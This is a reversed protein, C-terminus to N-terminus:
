SDRAEVMDRIDPGAAAVVVAISDGLAAEVVAAAAVVAAAVALADDEVFAPRKAAVVEVGSCEFSMEPGIWMM